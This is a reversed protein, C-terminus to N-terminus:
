RKDVVALTVTAKSVLEAKDGALCFLESEAIILQGGPKLVWSRCYLQEGKAARLLNVKFEATLIIQGEALLTVAATGATHDALTAQVGAHVYGDQQLHKEQLLVKSECRGAEFSVLEFDLHRVFPAEYFVREVEEAFGPNRIQYEAPTSLLDVMPSHWGM